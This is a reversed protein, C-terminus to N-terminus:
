SPVTFMVTNNTVEIKPNIVNFHECILKICKGFFNSFKRGMDLRITITEDYETRNQRFSFGSVKLWDCLTAIYNLLTYDQRFIIMQERPDYDM